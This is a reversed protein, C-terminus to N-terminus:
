KKEQQNYAEEIKSQTAPHTLNVPIRPVLSKVQSVLMNVAKDWESQNVQKFDPSSVIKLNDWCSIEFVIDASELRDRYGGRSICASQKNEDTMCIINFYDDSESPKSNGYTFFAPLEIEKKVKRVREISTFTKMTKTETKM